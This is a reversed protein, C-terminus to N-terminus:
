LWRRCSMIVFWKRGGGFCYCNRFIRSWLYSLSNSFRYCFLM